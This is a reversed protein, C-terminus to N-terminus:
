TQSKIKYYLKINRKTNRVSKKKKKTILSVYLKKVIDTVIKM